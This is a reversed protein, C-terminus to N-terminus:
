IVPVVSEYALIVVLPTNSNSGSCASVGNLASADRTENLSDLCDSPDGILDRGVETPYDILLTIFLITYLYSNSMIM